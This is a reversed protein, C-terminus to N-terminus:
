GPKRAVIFQVMGQAPRWDEVIEFGQATLMANLDASTFVKILPLLGLARGIPAVLKFYAMTNGICVTSSVFVGGPKLLRHVKAIAAAPDELLHLISHGMVADFSAEPAQFDDFAVARFTVNAGSTSATKARAIEIMKPSVDTALIHRVHPANRLATSGTGCGLELVEMDPRLYNRTIELKREYAALDAIPKAAYRAAIRDWFKARPDAPMAPTDATDTDITTTLTM